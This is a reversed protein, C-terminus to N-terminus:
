HKPFERWACSLQSEGSRPLAGSRVLGRESSRRRWTLERCGAKKWLGLGWRSERPRCVWSRWAASSRVMELRTEESVETRALAIEFRQLLVLCAMQIWGRQALTQGLGPVPLEQLYSSPFNQIDVARDHIATFLLLVLSVWSLEVSFGFVHENFM